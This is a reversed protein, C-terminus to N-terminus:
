AYTRLNNTNFRNSNKLSLFEKNAYKITNILYTGNLNLSYTGKGEFSLYGKKFARLLFMQGTGHNLNNLTSFNKYHIRKVGKFREFVNRTEKSNLFHYLLKLRNYHHGVFARNEIYWLLNQFNTSLNIKIGVINSKINFKELINVIDKQAELDQESININISNNSRLVATGDGILDKSIFGIAFEVLTKNLTKLTSIEKRIRKLLTIMIIRLVTSQININYAITSISKNKVLSIKIRHNGLGDKLKRIEKNLSKRVKPNYYLTYHWKEKVNFRKFIDIFFKIESLLKNTFSFRGGKKASEAQILGFLEGLKKDIRIFRRITISKPKSLNFYWVKLLDQGLEEILFIRHEVSVPIIALLDLYGKQIIKTSRLNKVKEIIIKISDHKKPKMIKVLEVPIVSKVQLYKRSKSKSPIKILYQYDYDPFYIRIYDDKNVNLEKLLFLPVTFKFKNRDNCIKITQELKKISKM